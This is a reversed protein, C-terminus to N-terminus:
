LFERLRLGINMLTAALLVCCLVTPGYKDYYVSSAEGRQLKISRWVYLLASYAIATLAAATFAGASIIGTIDDAPVFNLLATAIASILIAFGQWKLFTRENAFYVKPEVRVPIAIKHGPPARIDTVYTTGYNQPVKSAPGGEREDDADEDDEDEDRAAHRVHTETTRRAAENKANSLVEHLRAQFNKDFADATKLPTIGFGNGPTAGTRRREGNAERSSPRTTSNRRQRLYPTFVDMVEQDEPITGPAAKGKGPTKPAAAAPGANAARFALAENASASPVGSVKAEDSAIALDMDEDEEGSSVPEAHHFPVEPPNEVDPTTGSTTESRSGPPVHPRDFRLTTARRTRPKENIKVGMQPLWYPVLDVRNPLLTACGHIFKSFKPVSEVMESGVLDRVWQPPEQGVQTQLKVELVGYPFREIDEKAVQNFPWDIGMDTRRWNDGARSKGDWNDERIMSLETDLSIRVRADGPLQFATRHYFSRMVPQLHKDRVAEQVESALLKMADVEEQTKKGKEVLAQFEADMTYEGRMYANVKDEKIPVRAKVSKEGTWDERHTKREVFIQKNEMGGYWRLRIAQAGETKELRGLYLELDENDYYISTIATDELKFQKKPDFVLVPLHRMIALKVPVLYDEHVWYKTTQREFASQSGGASPDGQVPHGRTQVLDYIKSLKVILTEWDYKYFPRRALLQPLFNTKLDMGTRKDHKKIIKYFGALNLKSFVALDHIDAVLYAVEIELEAFRDELADRNDTDDWDEDDSGGDDAADIHHGSGEESGREEREHYETVLSTVADDALAVRRELEPIKSDQFDAIKELEKELANKFQRENGVTWVRDKSKLLSKLRGYELYYPEWEKYLEEQLKIGFKM